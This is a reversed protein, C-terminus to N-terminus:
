FGARQVLHHGLGKDTEKHLDHAVIGKEQGGRLSLLPSQLTLSEAFGDGGLAEPAEQLDEHLRLHKPAENLLPLQPLLPDSTLPESQATSHPFSSNSRRSCPSAGWGGGGDGNRPQLSCHRHLSVLLSQPPEKIPNANCADKVKVADEM